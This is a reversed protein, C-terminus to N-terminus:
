SKGSLWKMWVAKDMANDTQNIDWNGVSLSEFWDLFRGVNEGRFISGHQPCIMSPNIARIRQVWRNKHEDSPMWREHFEKMYQIHEDFNEVFLPAEASSLLAAGIDGSFLIDARPDYCSFNGSSHCFHAPVLYIMQRTSGIALEMGEDPSINLKLTTGMGFHSIFGTWLWSCYVKVDECLDLWMALSSAIDPDQHSALIVRINQTDVYRTLETLVQPFIATGGPDLLMAQDKHIIIYENTDIVEKEKEDDRGIVVWKHDDDEFIVRSKM